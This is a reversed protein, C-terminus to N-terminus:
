VEKFQADVKKLKEKLEINEQEQSKLFAIRQMDQSLSGSIDALPDTMACSSENIKSDAVSSIGLSNARKM